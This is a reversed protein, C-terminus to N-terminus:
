GLIGELMQVAVTAGDLLDGAVEGELVHTSDWCEDHHDWFKRGIVWRCTRKTPKIQLRIWYFPTTGSDRHMPENAYVCSSGAGMSWLYGPVAESLAHLQRPDVRGM